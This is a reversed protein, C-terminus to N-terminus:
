QKTKTKVTPGEECTSELLVGKGEEEEGGGEEEEGGEGEFPVM